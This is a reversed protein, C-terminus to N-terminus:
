AEPQVENAKELLEKKLEELKALKAKDKELSVSLMGSGALSAEASVGNAMASTHVDGSKIIDEKSKITAKLETIRKEVDEIKLDKKAKLADLIKGM